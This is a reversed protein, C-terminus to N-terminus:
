RGRGGISVEVTFRVGYILVSVNDPPRAEGGGDFLKACAAEDFVFADAWRRMAAARDELTAGLKRKLFTTAEAGHVRERVPEPVVVAVVGTPPPDDDETAELAVAAAADRAAAEAAEREAASRRLKETDWAVLQSDIARVAADMPEIYNGKFHESMLKQFTKQPRFLDTLGTEVHRIAKRLALRLDGFLAMDEDSQVVIAGAERIAALADSGKRLPDSKVIATVAVKVDEHVQTLESTSM